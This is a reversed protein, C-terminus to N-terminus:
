DAMITKISFHPDCEAGAMIANEIRRLVHPLETAMVWLASIGGGVGVSVCIVGWTMHRTVFPEAPVMLCTGLIVCIAMSVAVCFSHFTVVISTTSLSAPRAM